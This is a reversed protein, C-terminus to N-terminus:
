SHRCVQIIWMENRPTSRHFFTYSRGFASFFRNLRPIIAYSLFHFLTQSTNRNSANLRLGVAQGSWIRISWSKAFSPREKTPVLQIGDLIREGMEDWHSVPDVRTRKAWTM